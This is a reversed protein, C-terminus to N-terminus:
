RKKIVLCLYLFSFVIGREPIFFILFTLTIYNKVSQNVIWVKNYISFVKIKNVFLSVAGDCLGVSLSHM